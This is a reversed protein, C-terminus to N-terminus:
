HGCSESSTHKKPPLERHDKVYEMSLRGLQDHPNLRYSYLQHFPKPDEEKAMSGRPKLQPIVEVEAHPDDM